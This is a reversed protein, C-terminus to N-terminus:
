CVMIPMISCCKPNGKPGKKVAAVQLGVITATPTKLGIVVHHGIGRAGGVAQCRDNVHEQLLIKAGRAVRSTVKKPHTYRSGFAFALHGGFLPYLLDRISDGPGPIHPM